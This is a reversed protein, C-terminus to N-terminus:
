CTVMFFRQADYRYARSDRRTVGTRRTRRAQATNGINAGIARALACRHYSLGRFM